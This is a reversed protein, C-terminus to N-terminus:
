VTATQWKTASERVLPRTRLKSNSNTKALATGSPDPRESSLDSKNKTDKIQILRQDTLICMLNKRLINVNDTNSVTWPHIYLICLAEKLWHQASGVSIATEEWQKTQANDHFHMWCITENNSLISICEVLRQMAVSMKQIYSMHSSGVLGEIV